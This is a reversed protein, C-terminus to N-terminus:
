RQRYDKAFNGVRGCNCCRIVIMIARATAPPLRNKSLCKGAIHGFRNFITVHHHARLRSFKELPFFPAEGELIIEVAQSLFISEGRSRVITQIRQNNLGQFFCAKDLHCILGVAGLFNEPKCIRRAAERLETQTEDIRSGRSALCEYKKNLVLCGAHM